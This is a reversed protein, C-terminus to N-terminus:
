KRAKDYFLIACATFGALSGIDLLFSAIENLLLTTENIM